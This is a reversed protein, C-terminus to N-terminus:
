GGRREAGFRYQGVEVAAGSSVGGFRASVYGGLLPRGLRDAGQGVAVAM